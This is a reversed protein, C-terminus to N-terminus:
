QPLVGYAVMPGDKLVVLSATQYLLVGDAQARCTYVTEGFYDRIEGLVDGRRFSDGPGLAPYWCGTEPANEYVAEQFVTQPEVPAGEEAPAKLVGLYTLIRRVDRKDLEVEGRSWAGMGGREILVAPIGVANAHNYAGGTTGQSEVLYKVRARRAMQFATERVWEEVPGVYYAYPCLEEYGDGAHLDIYYNAKEILEATVTRCIQEAPTGGASGPFERNLNKNDEYVMSMTRRTFGSVNVLPAIVVSGRVQEPSLEEALEIAAQIGVYEASHIGATVLATEGDGGRIVTVPLQYGCGEVQLFGSKKEGPHIEM